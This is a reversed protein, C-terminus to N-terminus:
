KILGKSLLYSISKEYLEYVTLSPPQKVIQQMTLVHQQISPLNLQLLGKVTLSDM